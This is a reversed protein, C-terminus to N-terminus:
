PLRYRELTQVGDEDSAVVYIGRLGVHAIRRGPKLEVQAVRRGTADFVDYRVPENPIVPTGVWTRGDAAAIVASADFPPYKEAWEATGVMRVIEAEPVAPGRGMGGDPGRGSVPSSASFERLYRKKDELTVPRANAPYTPGVVAARGPAVIEVRYPTARVIVLAGTSSVVWADQSAFGVMPMRPQLAPSRDKRYRTGQIIAIARGDGETGPVWRVLRVSDDPMANPGESWSPIAHIFAGSADLGRV